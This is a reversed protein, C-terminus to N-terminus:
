PDPPREAGPQGTFWRCHAEWWKTSVRRGEWTPNELNMCNELELQKQARKAPHSVRKSRNKATAKELRVRTAELKRCAPYWDSLSGAGNALNQRLRSACEDLSEGSAPSSASLILALAGILLLNERTM